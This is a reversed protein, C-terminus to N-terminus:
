RRQRLQGMQYRYEAVDKIMEDFDLVDYMFDYLSVIPNSGKKVAAAAGKVIKDAFWTVRGWSTFAEVFDYQLGDKGETVQFLLDFGALDDEEVTNEPDGWFTSRGVEGRGNDIHYWAGIVDEINPHLNNIYDLFLYLKGDKEQFSAAKGFPTHEDINNMVAAKLRKIKDPSYGKEAAKKPNAAVAVKERRRRNMKAISAEELPEATAANFYARHSQSNEFLRHFKM